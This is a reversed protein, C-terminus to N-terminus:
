LERAGGPDVYRVRKRSGAAPGAPGPPGASGPDGKAGVAGPPGPSGQPGPSGENCGSVFIAVAAIAALGNVRM